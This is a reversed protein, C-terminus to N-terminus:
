NKGKRRYEEKIKLYADETGPEKDRTEKNFLHTPYKEAVKALKENLMTEVDIGLIVAMDFCYIMVDALEKRIQAMKEADEKVDTYEPNNWQFLELLEAGEIIISKALDSPRLENWAREELHKRIKEEFDKM